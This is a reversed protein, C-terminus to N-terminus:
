LATNKTKLCLEISKTTLRTIMFVKRKSSKSIVRPTFRNALPTSSWSTMENGLKSHQSGNKTVLVFDCLPKLLPRVFHIYGDLIQMSTDILIVSDFGYKGATKFTKQDIFGGNAKAEKVM